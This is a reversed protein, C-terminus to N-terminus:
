FLGLSGLPLSIGLLREFLVYVGFTLAPPIVMLLWAKRVGLVLFSVALFLITSLGYGVVTALYVYLLFAGLMIMPKLHWLPKLGEAPRAAKKRARFFSSILALSEVALAGLVLRPMFTPGLGVTRPRQELSYGFEPFRYTLIFLFVSFGLLLCGAALDRQAQGMSARGM